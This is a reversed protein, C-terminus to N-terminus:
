EAKFSTPARSLNSLGANVDISLNGSLDAFPSRALSKANQIGNTLFNLVNSAGSPDANIGVSVDGALSEAADRIQNKGAQIGQVMLDIM